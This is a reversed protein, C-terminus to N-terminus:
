PAPAPQGAKLLGLWHTVSGSSSMARRRPVPRAGARCCRVPRHGRCRPTTLSHGPPPTPIIRRRCSPARGERRGAYGSIRVIYLVQRLSSLALTRTHTTAAPPPTRVGGRGARGRPGPTRPRGVGGGRPRRPAPPGPPLRTGGGGVELAAVLRAATRRLPVGPFGAAQSGAPGPHNVQVRPLQLSGGDGSVVSPGWGEAWKRGPSFSERPG